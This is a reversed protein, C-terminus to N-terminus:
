GRSELSKKKRRVLQVGDLDVLERHRMEGIAKMRVGMASKPSAACVLSSTGTEQLVDVLKSIRKADLRGVFVNPQPEVLANRLVGRVMAAPNELLVFVVPM